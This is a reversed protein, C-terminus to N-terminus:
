KIEIEELIDKGEKDKGTIRYLKGKQELVRQPFLCGSLHDMEHQIITALFGKFFQHHIKGDPTVYKLKIALHRRVNGWIGPLSLCGELPNEREPVGNTLEESLWAIKPNIFIRFPSKPYPKTIFIQLSYGIQPAALGVGKPNNQANLTKKMEEIITLIKKDIKEVPKTKQSLIAQPAKLIKLM